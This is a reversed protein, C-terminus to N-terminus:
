RDIILKGRHFIKGRTVNSGRLDEMEGHMHIEGGKMRMGAGRAKGEVIIRGGCMGYGVLARTSGDIHITGSLMGYGLHCGVDGKISVDKQNKYCLSEVAPNFQEINIRFTNGRGENVIASLFLGTHYRSMSQADIGDIIQPLVFCFREVDLSSYDLGKLSEVAKAYIEIRIDVSGSKEGDELAKDFTYTLFRGFAEALARTIQDGKVHVRKLEKVGEKKYRGFRKRAAMSANGQPGRCRVAMEM